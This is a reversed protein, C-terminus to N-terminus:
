DKKDKDDDDDDDDDDAKEKVYGLKELSETMDLTVIDNGDKDRLIIEDEDAEVEVYKTKEEDTM